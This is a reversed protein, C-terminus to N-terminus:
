FDISSRTVHTAKEMMEPGLPVSVPLASGILSVEMRTLPATKNWEWNPLKIETVWAPAYVEWVQSPEKTTIGDKTTTKVDSIVAYTTLATLTSSQVAPIAYQTKGKATPNKILPLFDSRVENDFTSIIASLRDIGPKTTDFESENKVVQAIYVPFEQWISLNVSQNSTLRKFDTPILYGNNDTAALAIMTLGAKLAPAKFAKKDKFNLSNVDVDLNTVNKELQVDKITGGNISFFNILEVIPKKGMFGDVVADFPFRGRAVFVRQFGNQAFQLRYQPKDLNVDFLFKKETQKPLSINSPIPIEQGVAKIVDTLPSMVKQIQFNLLDQRTMAGMVLSFDVIDDKNRVPHGSTKGRLEAAAIFKKTLQINRGSPLLETYTVRLFGPADITLMQATTWADPILIEGKENTVGYNGEFPNNQATGILYQAGIVAQGAADKVSIINSELDQQFPDQAEASGSGAKPKPKEDESCGSLGFSLISTFLVLQAIKRLNKM